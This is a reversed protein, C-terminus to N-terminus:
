VVERRANVGFFKRPSFNLALSCASQLNAFTEKKCVFSDAPTVEPLMVTPSAIIIAIIIYSINYAIIAEIIRLNVNLINELLVGFAFPNFRQCTLKRIVFTLNDFKFCFM